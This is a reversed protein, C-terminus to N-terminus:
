GIKKKVINRKKVHKLEAVSLANREAIIAMIENRVPTMIGNNFDEDINYTIKFPLQYQRGKSGSRLQRIYMKAYDLFGEEIFITLIFPDLYKVNHEEINLEEYISIGFNMMKLNKIASKQLKEIDSFTHKFRFRKKKMCKENNKYIFIYEANESNYLIKVDETRKYKSNWQDLKLNLINIICRKKESIIKSKDKYIKLIELQEKGLSKKSLKKIYRETQGGYTHELENIYNEIDKYESYVIKATNGLLIEEILNCMKFYMKKIDELTKLNNEYEKKRCFVSYNKYVIGLEDRINEVYCYDYKKNISNLMRLYKKSKLRSFSSNNYRLNDYLDQCISRIIINIDEM